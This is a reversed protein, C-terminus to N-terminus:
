RKIFVSFKGVIYLISKWYLKKSQKDPKNKWSIIPLYNPLFSDAPASTNTICTKLQAVTKTALFCFNHAAKEM